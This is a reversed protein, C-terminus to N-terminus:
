SSPTTRRREMEHWLRRSVPGGSREVFALDLLAESVEDAVREQARPFLRIFDALGRLEEARASALSRLADRRDPAGLVEKSLRRAERSIELVRDMKRQINM